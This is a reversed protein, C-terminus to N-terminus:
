DNRGPLARRWQIAESVHLATIVDSGALDAVTRAIRLVRHFSRASWALRAAARHLMAEGEPSMGLHGDLQGAALMANSCGQRRVARDRAAAVRAAVAASTEGDAAASLITPPLVPVEVTLDIRDLLPGSLRNQYRTVQDPSCRCAKTPNGLHGCPCPNMAAVLQFRAPFEAQHASRSIHVRGTELPERLAELSMRQFEPLEDLFLVGHQALTIEGPRPPSGGGIMAASSASHHPARFARQAWMSPRFQGNASLLAASELAESESLPPLLTPLRQALMSKGTGPPGVLLISLGGAAAIELARKPGSQGKIDRLDLPTEGRPPPDRQVRPLPSESNPQLANVLDLLHAAERVVLGQVLAAEDACGRPLVLARDLKAARLALAMALAGKIPRLEGSLGLEGACEINALMDADIQGSAALLGLAIPLDFRAGEKPLDAPSLNVTIRKNAPFELGSSQLAARVRERSEKVELDALGVLTFSPLGNALHVEVEVAAASLGDLARSHIISLSM